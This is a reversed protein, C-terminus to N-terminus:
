DNGLKAKALVATGAIRPYRKAKKEKAM